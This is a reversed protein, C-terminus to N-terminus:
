APADPLVKGPNMRNEPDLAKKIARMVHLAVPDKRRAMSPRKHIGIGHEASFSGRLDSTIDEVAEMLADKQGGTLDPAILTYHVNGDGLHSVLVTECGPAMQNMAADAREIFPDVATLPVSVDFNVFRGRSLAVDAAADRRDWMETRQSESKAVVADLVAGDELLGALTAELRETAPIAGDPGPKADHEATTGIEILLATDYITDFPQRQDPFLTGWAELYSRPMLEFAEVAGGSDRQLRNLLRLASDLGDTAVMATTYAAPAPFLKLVAATILGLTGEAGIFLDKLDYGTNDKHLESMLDLVEGSALVVELGLCLARTNGYRLVNSGGANTSLSGGILASGRAGFFLPFILDHEQVVDQIKSVIVGAEVTITRADTNLARVKNMREMSIMLAADAQTGGALGTNGSVPVVAIGYRAAAKVCEAVEATNAPRAVALPTWTLHGSWDKAYKDTDKGTLVNPAGLAARLDDILTM